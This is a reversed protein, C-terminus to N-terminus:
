GGHTSAANELADYRERQPNRIWEGWTLGVEGLITEIRRRFPLQAEQIQRLMPDPREALKTRVHQNLKMELEEALEPETDAINVLEKPDHLLDYLETVPRQFLGPDYYRILKYRETRIARAAQWACESLFVEELTGDTEGQISSWLSRGDIGDPTAMAAKNRESTAAKAAAELVTPVLDAHQVFGSVRAGEPINGPWRMIIPVHVTPEYLGCHDWYIDHETLSEGHDGFLVLLTEEKIGLHELTDDLERLLDDLYRIEADYLANMYEADTM